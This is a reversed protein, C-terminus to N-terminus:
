QIARRSGSWCTSNFRLDNDALVEDGAPTEGGGKASTRLVPGYRDDARCLRPMEEAVRESGKRLEEQLRFLDLPM